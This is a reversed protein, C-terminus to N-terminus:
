VFIIYVFAACYELDDGHVMTGIFQGIQGSPSEPCGLVIQFYLARAWKAASCTGIPLSSSGSMGESPSGCPLFVMGCKM